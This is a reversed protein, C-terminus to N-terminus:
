GAPVVRVVVADGDGVSGVATRLMGAVTAVTTSSVAEPGTSVGAANPIRDVTVQYTGDQLGSVLVTGALPGDPTVTSPCFDEVGPVCKHSRGLLVTVSGDDNVSAVSAGWPDNTEVAALSGTMGGYSTYAFYNPTVDGSKTRLGDLLGSGCTSIKTQWNDLSIPYCALDAGIAGARELTAFYKVTAAPDGRWFPSGYETPAILPTGLTAHESVLERINAVDDAIVQPENTTEDVTRGGLPHWSIVGFHLAHADAFDLFASLNILANTSAVPSVLSPGVIVASPLVSRIANYAVQFQQLIRARTPPTLATNYYRGDPENQIEWWTPVINNAVHWKVTNVVWTSYANWNDWPNRMVHSNSWNNVAWGGSLMATINTAGADRAFNFAAADHAAIRWSQVHLPTLQSAPVATDTSQLLGSGVHTIAAVTTKADVAVCPAPTGICQGPPLVGIATGWRSQHHAADESAVGFAYTTGATLGDLTISSCTACTYRWSWIGRGYDYTAVGQRVRGDPPGPTWKVLMSSASLPVAVVAAPTVLTAARAPTAAIAGTVVVAVVLAAVRGLLRRPVRM